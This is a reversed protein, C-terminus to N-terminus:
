AILDLWFILPLPEERRTFKFNDNIVRIDLNKVAPIVPFVLGGYIAAVLVGIVKNVPVSLVELLLESYPHWYSFELSINMERVLLLQPHALDLLEADV